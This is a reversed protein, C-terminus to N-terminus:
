DLGFPWTGANTIRRYIINSLSVKLVLMWANLCTREFEARVAAKYIMALYWVAEHDLGRCLDRISHLDTDPPCCWRHHTEPHCKHCEFSSPFGSLDLIQDQLIQVLFRRGQSFPCNYSVFGPHPLFWASAGVLATQLGQYSRVKLWWPHFWCLLTSPVRYKILKWKFIQM